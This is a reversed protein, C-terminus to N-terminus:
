RLWIAQTKGYETSTLVRKPKANEGANGNGQLLSRQANIFHTVFPDLPNELLNKLTDKQVIRGERMLVIVDGLFAAENMDHTVLVVTKNLTKFIGKLDGQLDFRILPDLAALPEDLLLAAPDLMLARMLSVRQKQGGSLQIPYRKLGDEPFKTLHTLESLRVDIQKPDMRLYRAMLTVNEEATLHPFLGGDQIVYGMKRRLDRANVPEMLKGDFSAEGDDPQILGIMLRLLTSKGCGSPGILVTTKAPEINLDAAQVAPMHDFRKTVHRIELM